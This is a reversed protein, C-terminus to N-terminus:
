ELEEINKQQSRDKWSTGRWKGVAIESPESANPSLKASTESQSSNNIPESLHKGFNFDSEEILNHRPAPSFSLCDGTSCPGGGNGNGGNGGNGNDDRLPGLTGATIRRELEESRIGPTSAFVEPNITVIEGMILDNLGIRGGLDGGFNDCVFQQQIEVQLLFAATRLSKGISTDSTTLYRLVPIPNVVPQVPSPTPISAIGAPSQSLGFIFGVSQRDRPGFGIARQLAKADIYLSRDYIFPGLTQNEYVLTYRISEVADPIYNIVQPPDSDDIPTTLTEGFRSYQHGASTLAFYEFADEVRSNDRILVPPDLSELDQREARNNLTTKSVATRGIASCSQTSPPLPLTQAFGIKYKTPTSLNAGMIILIILPIKKSPIM